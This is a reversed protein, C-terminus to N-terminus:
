SGDTLVAMRCFLNLNNEMGLIQRIASPLEPKLGSIRNLAICPHCFRTRIRPLGNCLICFGAQIGTQLKAPGAFHEGSEPCLFAPYAFGQGHNPEYNQLTHLVKGSNGNPSKGSICHPLSSETQIEAPYAIFTKANLDDYGLPTYSAGFEPLGYWPPHFRAQSETPVKGRHSNRAQSETQVKGEQSNRARSKTSVKVRHSNRTRSEPCVKM